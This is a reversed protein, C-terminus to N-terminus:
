EQRLAKLVSSSRIDRYATKRHGGVTIQAEGMEAKLGSDVREQERM